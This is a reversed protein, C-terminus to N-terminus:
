VQRRRKWPLRSENVCGEDRGTSAPSKSSGRRMEEEGGGKAVELSM